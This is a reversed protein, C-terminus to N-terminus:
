NKYCGTPQPWLSQQHVTPHIALAAFVTTYSPFDFLWKHFYCATGTCIRWQLRFVDMKMKNLEMKEHEQLKLFHLFDRISLKFLKSLIEKWTPTVVKINARTKKINVRKCLEVNSLLKLVELPSAQSVHLFEKFKNLGSVSPTISTISSKFFFIESSKSESDGQAAVSTDNIVVCKQM